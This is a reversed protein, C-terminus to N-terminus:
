KETNIDESCRVFKLVPDFWKRSDWNRVFVKFQPMEWQMTLQAVLADKENAFIVYGYGQSLTRDNCYRVVEVSKLPGYESFLRRLYKEQKKANRNTTLNFISLCLAAPNLNTQQQESVGDM